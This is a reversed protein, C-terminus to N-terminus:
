GEPREVGFSKAIRAFLAKTEAETRGTTEPEAEPEDGEPPAFIEPKSIELLGGIPEITAYLM